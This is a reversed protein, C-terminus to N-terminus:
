YIPDSRAKLAGVNIIKRRMAELTAKDLKVLVGDVQEITARGKILPVHGCHPCKQETREYARICQSCQKLPIVNPDAATSRAGKPRKSLSWIRDADPLGHRKYNGVQDIVTGIKKGALIRLVRGFQQIYINLSNTPRDFIVCEVAPIDTGEGLIDISVVVMIERQEFRDLVNSRVGADTEGTLLEARIGSKNFQQALEIGKEVSPAFVLCLKNHAHKIYNEVTDGVIKSKNVAKRVSNPTFDGTKDSIQLDNNDISSQPVILDYDTLFGEEILSRM